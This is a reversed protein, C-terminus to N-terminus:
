VKRAKGPKDCEWYADHPYNECAFLCAIDNCTYIHTYTYMYIYIRIYMIFLYNNYHIYTDIIPVFLFTTKILIQRRIGKKNIKNHVAPSTSEKAVSHICFINARTESLGSSICPIQYANGANAM